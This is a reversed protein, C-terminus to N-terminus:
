LAPRFLPEGVGAPGYDFVNQGSLGFDIESGEHRM